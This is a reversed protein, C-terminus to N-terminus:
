IDFTTELSTSNTIELPASTSCAITILLCITLPLITKMDVIKDDLYVVFM